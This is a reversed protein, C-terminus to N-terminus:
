KPAVPKLRRNVPAWLTLSGKSASTYHCLAFQWLCRAATLLSAALLLVTLVMGSMLHGTIAEAPVTTMFAVSILYTLM